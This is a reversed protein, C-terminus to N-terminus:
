YQGEKELKQAFMERVNAESESDAGSNQCLMPYIELMIAANPGSHCWDGSEANSGGM